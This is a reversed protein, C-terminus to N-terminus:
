KIILKKTIINEGESLIKVIYIGSHLSLRNASFKNVGLNLQTEYKKQGLISYISVQVKEKAQVNLFFEDNTPNPTMKVTNFGEVETGLVDVRKQSKSRNLAVLSSSCSGEYIKINSFTSNNGSGADNDNIFVFRDM